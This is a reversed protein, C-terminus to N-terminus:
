GLTFVTRIKEPFDSVEYCLSNAYVVAKGHRIEVRGRPFYNWPKKIGTKCSDWIEKHVPTDETAEVAASILKELVIDGDRSIGCILWFPGKKPLTNMAQETLQMRMTM